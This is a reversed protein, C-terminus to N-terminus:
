QIYFCLINLVCALLEIIQPYKQMPNMSTKNVRLFECTFIQNIKSTQKRMMIKLFIAIYDQTIEFIFLPLEMLDTLMETRHSSVFILNFPIM